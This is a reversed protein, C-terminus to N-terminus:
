GSARLRSARARGVPLRQPARGRAEARLSVQLEALVEQGALTRLAAQTEALEWVAARVQGLGWAREPPGRLQVLM